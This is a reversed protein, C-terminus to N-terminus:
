KMFLCPFMNKCKLVCAYMILVKFSKLFDDYALGDCVTLAKFYSCMNQFYYNLAEFLKLFCMTHM